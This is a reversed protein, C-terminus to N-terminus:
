LVDIDKCYRVVNIRQDDMPNKTSGDRRYGLSNYFLTARLNDELTWLYIRTFGRLSFEDEVWNMLSKGIGKNFYSVDIYIGWVEACENNLDVDRAKGFTMFGVVLNRVVAVVTEEQKTELVNRFYELRSNYTVKNLTDLSVIEKYAVKITNSHISAISVADDKVAKRIIVTENVAAGMTVMRM